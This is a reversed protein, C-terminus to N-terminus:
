AGPRRQGKTRLSRRVREQEVDARDFLRLGSPTRVAIRLAGRRAMLRVTAPTVGLKRGAEAATLLVQMYGGPYLSAGIYFRRTASPAVLIQM